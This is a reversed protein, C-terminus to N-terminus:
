SAGRDQQIATALDAEFESLLDEYPLAKARYWRCAAAKTVLDKPILIEDGNETVAAKGTAWHASVYRVTAGDTDLGPSFHLKGGTLHFHPTASPVQALLAWLEPSTVPKVPVHGTKNLRVAGTGVLRDFDAPLVGPGAGGAVTWDKMLGSWEARTAIDKGAENIFKVIQVTEFDTAAVNPAAPNLGVQLMTEQLVTLATM